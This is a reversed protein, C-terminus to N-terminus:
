EDIELWKGLLCFFIFAPIFILDLTTCPPDPQNM